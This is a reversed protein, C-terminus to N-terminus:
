QVSGTFRRQFRPDLRDRKRRNCPGCLVQFNSLDNSGGLALPIIHDIQLGVCQGQKGCSQCQYNDRQLVLERVALPISIRPTKPM